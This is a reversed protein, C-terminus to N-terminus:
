RLRVVLSWPADSAGSDDVRVAVLGDATAWCGARAKSREAGRRPGTWAQGEFPAGNRSPDPECGPGTEELAGSDIATQDLPLQQGPHESIAVALAGEPTTAVAEVLADERAAFVFVRAGGDCRQRPGFQWTGRTADSPAQWVTLPATDASGDTGPDGGPDGPVCTPPPGEADTQAELTAAPPWAPPRLLVSGLATVAPVRRLRIGGPVLEAQLQAPPWLPTPATVAAQLTDLLAQRDAATGARGAARLTLVAGHIELRWRLGEPGPQEGDEDLAWAAGIALRTPELSGVDVAGGRATWRPRPAAPTATTQETLLSAHWGWPAVWWPGEDAAGAPLTLV